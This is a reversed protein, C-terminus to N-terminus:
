ALVRSFCVLMNPRTIVMTFTYWVIAIKLDSKNLDSQTHHKKNSSWTRLEAYLFGVFTKRLDEGDYSAKLSNDNLGLWVEGGVELQVLGSTADGGYTNSDGNTRECAMM